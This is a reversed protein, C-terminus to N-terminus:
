CVAELKFIERGAIANIKEQALPPVRSSGFKWNRFTQGSIRCESIVKDRIENYSGIPISDVWEKFHNTAEMNSKQKIKATHKNKFVACLYFYFKSLRM